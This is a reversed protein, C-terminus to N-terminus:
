VPKIRGAIRGKVQAIDRILSGILRAVKEFGCIRSHIFEKSTIRVSQSPSYYDPCHGRYRAVFSAAKDFQLLRTKEEGGTEYRNRVPLSSSYEFEDRDNNEPTKHSYVFTSRSLLVTILLSSSMPLFTKKMVFLLVLVRPSSASFAFIM